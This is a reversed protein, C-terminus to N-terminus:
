SVVEEKQSEGLDRMILEAIRKNISVHKDSCNKYFQDYISRPVRLMREVYDEGLYRSYKYRTM